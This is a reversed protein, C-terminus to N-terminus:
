ARLSVEGSVFREVAGDPLELLLAGDPEVDRALGSRVASSDLLTVARGLTALSSRWEDFVAAPSVLWRDYTTALASLLAAAVKSRDLARGTALWVSTAPYNTQPLEEARQLVNLGIGVVAFSLEAGEFASEILVGGCKAEGLLVDNPWKLSAAVDFRALARVAAVGAVQALTGVQNGVVRPRWLTSCMVGRGGPVEWRRGLRGRGATQLEAFVALREPLGREGARRVVDNTSGIEDLCVLRWGVAEGGIGRRVDWPHVTM